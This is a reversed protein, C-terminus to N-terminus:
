ALAPINNVLALWQSLRELVVKNAGANCPLKAEIMSREAHSQRVM